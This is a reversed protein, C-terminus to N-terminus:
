LYPETQFASSSQILMSGDSFSSLKLYPLWRSTTWRYCATILVKKDKAGVFTTLSDTGVGTGPALNGGSLCSQTVVAGWDNASQLQLTVNSCDVYTTAANCVLTKFQSVTLGAKQAEGTRVLRAASDVGRDLCNVSYYYMGTNVIGFVMMLFPTVVMAFEIATAGSRDRAFACLTRGKPQISRTQRRFVSLM